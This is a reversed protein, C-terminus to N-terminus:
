ATGGAAFGLVAAGRARFREGAQQLLEQTITLYVLTSNVDKHGLYTALYPLLPQPNIGEQYWTLMRNVVFAHRLDHVRPRPRERPELEVRKLVRRLLQGAAVYSYREATRQQWFLGAAPENPAGAQRRAELYSRLASLVSSALPLRRSKFFKTDRIEITGGGLDVDGVNLRVIEGLRLGACYALVFMTYLTLPRLPSRTSPFNRAAELLHSVEEESCIYPRRHRQRVRKELDSDVAILEITPDLRRMAKSLIRGIQSCRWAHEATPTANAWERVLRRLPLGRLDSHEQLFRDFRLLGKEESIYRRGVSRMLALYDRMPPGLFSGFRPLPRLAELASASDPKLLARVVPATTRQLYQRRLEAFPNSQLSRTAVAWDLFRDVLRADYLVVPLPRLSAHDRLWDQIAAVSLAAAGAKGLYCQFDSLIRHYHRPAGSSRLCLQQIYRRVSAAGLSPSASM